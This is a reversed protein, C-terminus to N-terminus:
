KLGSLYNNVQNMQEYNPYQRNVKELEQRAQLKNGQQLYSLGLKFQADPAKGSDPYKWTVKEFEGIAKNYEEMSYYSEGLWYRANAALEHLPYKELFSRFMGSAEEYDGSDYIVKANDYALQAEPNNPEEVTLKAIQKPKKEKIVPKETTVSGINPNIKQFYEKIETLEKEMQAIQEQYSITNFHFSSTYLSDSIYSNLMTKLDTLKQKQLRITQQILSDAQAEENLEKPGTQSSNQRLEILELETIAKLLAQRYFVIDREVQAMKVSTEQQFQKIMNLMELHEKQANRDQKYGANSSCAALMLVLLVLSIYKMM